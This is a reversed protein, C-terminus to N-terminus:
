YYGMMDATSWHEEAEGHKRQQNVREGRITKWIKGTHIVNKILM